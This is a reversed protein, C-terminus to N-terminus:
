LARLIIIMHKTLANLVKWMNTGVVRRINGKRVRVQAEGRHWQM